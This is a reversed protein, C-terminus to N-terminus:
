AAAARFRELKKQLDVGEAFLCSNPNGGALEQLYREYPGPVDEVMIRAAASPPADKEPGCYKWVWREMEQNNSDTVEEREREHEEGDSHTPTPDRYEKRSKAPYWNKLLAPCEWIAKDDIGLGDCALRVRVSSHIRENTERLFTDRERNTKRDVQKYLGPTRTIQGSLVYIFSSAKKLAELGWPRMPRNTEYIVKCAWPPKALIPQTEYYDVNRQFLRWLGRDDFEVGVSALQDMM